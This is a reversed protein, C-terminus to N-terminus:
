FKATFAVFLQRGLYDYAAWSNAPGSNSSIDLSPVVPPDKDLLNTVGARMDLGKWAHWVATLDFYNWGAIRKNFDNYYFPPNNGPGSAGEKGQLL